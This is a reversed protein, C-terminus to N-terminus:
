IVWVRVVQSAAASKFSLDALDNKAGMPAETYYTAGPAITAFDATSSPGISVWNAQTANNNADAIITANQYQCTFTCAATLAGTSAGTAIYYTFVTASTVSIVNATVNFRADSAGSVTVSMGARLGHPNTSTYTAINANNGSNQKFGSPIVVTVGDTTVTGPVQPAMTLVTGPTGHSTLYVCRGILVPLNMDGSYNRVGM